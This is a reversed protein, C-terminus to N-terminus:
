NPLKNADDARPGSKESAVVKKYKERNSSRINNIDKVVHHRNVNPDVTQLIQILIEYVTARKTRDSFDKCKLKVSM